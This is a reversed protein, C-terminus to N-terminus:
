RDLRLKEQLKKNILCVPRAQEMDVLSFPRGITVYRRQILHWDRDIATISVEDLSRTDFRVTGSDDDVRTIARISPTYPRVDDFLHPDFKIRMRTGPTWREGEPLQPFTWLKDTGVGEFETLVYRKMGTLAAVVAVVAAVGIVIGVTTLISRVKNSWIQGIAMFISQYILVLIRIM